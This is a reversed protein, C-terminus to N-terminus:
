KITVVMIIKGTVISSASLLEFIFGKVLSILILSSKHSKTHEPIKVNGLKHPSIQFDM